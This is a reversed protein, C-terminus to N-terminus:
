VKIQKEGYKDYVAEEKVTTAIKYLITLILFGVAWVGLTIFAEPITPWYEFVKEFMNPLMIFKQGNLLNYRYQKHGVRSLDVQMKPPSLLVTLNQANCNQM